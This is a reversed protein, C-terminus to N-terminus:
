IKSLLQQAKSIFESNPFEKLLRDLSQRANAPQKMKLYTKGLMLLADDQKLSREYSLVVNFAEVAKANDGAGFYCEGIWYQCNSALSHTPYQSLLQTFEQIAEQYRKAYYKNLAQEYARPFGEALDPSVPRPTTAAETEGISQKKEQINQRLSSIESEKSDIQQNLDDIKSKMKVYQEMDQGSKPADGQESEMSDLRSRLDDVEGTEATEIPVEEMAVTGESKPQGLLLSLGGRVTLFGDKAGGRIGFDLDDGTTQKYTAGFDLSTKSSLSFRFGGGGFFAGESLRGSEFSSDTRSVAFSFAGAGATLYPRFSGKFLEFDLKLDGFFLKTNFDVNGTKPPTISAGSLSFPLQNYGATLTLGLRNSFNYTLSGDAGFGFDAQKVAGDGFLQQAGVGLGLGWRGKKGQALTEKGLMGIMAFLVIFLARNKM